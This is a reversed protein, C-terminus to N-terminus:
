PTCNAAECIESSSLAANWIRLQDIAGLFPDDTPNVTDPVNGGLRTGNTSATAIPASVAATDVLVGDVYLRLTASRVTCALHTWRDTELRTTGSARRNPGNVQTIACTPVGGNELYLAYGDAHDVIMARPNGPGSADIRVGADVTMASTVDLSPSEPVRVDSTSAHVLANGNVGTTYSVAEAITAHNANLSSDDTDGEFAYCAVLRADNPPCPAYGPTIPPADAVSPADGELTDAPIETLECTFTSPACVLGDPCAGNTGCPLGPALTPGYCATATVLASLWVCRM